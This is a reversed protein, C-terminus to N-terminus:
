SGKKRILEVMPREPVIWEIPGIAQELEGRIYDDTSPHEWGTDLHVAHYPIGQERFWLCLAASDKGGSVSAVVPVDLEVSM